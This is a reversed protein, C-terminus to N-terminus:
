KAEAAKRSSTPYRACQWNSKELTEEGQAQNKAVYHVSLSTNAIREGILTQPVDTGM